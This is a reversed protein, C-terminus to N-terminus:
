VGGVLPGVSTPVAIVPCAVIGGVVEGAKLAAIAIFYDNKLLQRLYDASPRNGSYTEVEDFAEGFTALLAEMLAVDDPVIQQITLNM